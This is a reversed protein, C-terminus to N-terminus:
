SETYCHNTLDWSLKGEKYLRKAEDLPLAYDKGANRCDRIVKVMQVKPKIDKPLVRKKM